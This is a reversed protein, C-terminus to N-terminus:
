KLATQSKLVRKSVATSTMAVTEQNQTIVRSPPEANMDHLNVFKLLTGRTTPQISNSSIGTHM